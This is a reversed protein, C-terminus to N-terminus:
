SGLPGRRYVSVDRAERAREGGLPTWLNGRERITALIFRKRRPGEYAWIFMLSTAFRALTEVAVTERVMLLEAFTFGAVAARTRLALRLVSNEIGVRV